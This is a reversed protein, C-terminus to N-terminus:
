RSNEKNAKTDDQINGLIWDQCEKINYTLSKKVVTSVDEFM